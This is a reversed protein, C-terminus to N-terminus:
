AGKPDEGSTSPIRSPQLRCPRSPLAMGLARHENEAWDPIMAEYKRGSIVGISAERGFSGLLLVM